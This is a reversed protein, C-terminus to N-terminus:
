PNKIAGALGQLPLHLSCAALDLRSDSSLRDVKRTCESIASEILKKAPVTEIANARCNEQLYQIPTKGFSDRIRPDTGSNLLMAQLKGSQEVKVIYRQCLYLTHLPTRGYRDIKNVSAVKRRVLDAMDAIEETSYYCSSLLHLATFGDGKRMVMQFDFDSWHEMLVELVQKPSYCRLEEKMKRRSMQQLGLFLLQFSNCGQSNVVDKVIFGELASQHRVVEADGMWCATLFKFKNFEGAADEEYLFEILMKRFERKCRSLLGLDEALYTPDGGFELILKGAETKNYRAALILM